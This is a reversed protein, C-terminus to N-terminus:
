KVNQIDKLLKENEEVKKYLKILLQKVESLDSDKQQTPDPDSDEDESSELQAQYRRRKPKPQSREKVLGETFYWSPYNAQSFSSFDELNDSPPTAQVQDRIGPSVSQSPIEPSGPLSVQRLEDDSADSDRFFAESIESPDLAM